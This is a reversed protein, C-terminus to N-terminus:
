KKEERKEAETKVPVKEWVEDGEKLGSLIVTHTGDTDGIRVPVKKKDWRENESERWPVWVFVDRGESALAENKVLLVNEQTKTEFSLDAQLGMLKQIEQDDGFLRIRVRFAIAAGVTAPIPEPLIREIVGKFEDARYAEVTVTVPRGMLEEVEAPLPEEVEPQGAAAAADPPRFAVRTAAVAGTGPRTTDDQKPSAHKDDSSRDAGRLIKQGRERYEEESLKKTNGPRAYDPAIERIAGIDAEDVQAMVFMADVNALMMLPTGGTFSQTGGQIVEGTKVQLSYVMADSPARVTTEDLRLRAEEVAKVAEDHAAEAQAVDEEASSLLVIENNKALELDAKAIEHAAKASDRAAKYALGELETRNADTLGSFWEYRKNAEEFRTGSELVRAEAVRTQLPLDVKQKELLSRTKQLAAKARKLNAQRAELNRQEDVPDLELLIDDKRVRQGEVVHIQAVKGSAKSKILIYEAAEIKGTATVPIVLTGRTVVGRKGDLFNLGIPGLNMVGIVGGVLVVVVIGGIIYRKM